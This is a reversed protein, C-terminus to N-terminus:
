ETDFNLKKKSISFINLVCIPFNQIDLHFMVPVTPVSDSVPVKFRTEVTAFVVGRSNLQNSYYPHIM